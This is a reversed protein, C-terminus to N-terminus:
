KPDVEGTPDFYHWFSEHLPANAPGNLVVDLEENVFHLEYMGTRENAYGTDGDLVEMFGFLASRAALRILLQVNERGKFDLNQYWKHLMVDTPLPERGPPGEVLDRIVGMEALECGSLLEKFFEDQDM